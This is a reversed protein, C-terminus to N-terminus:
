SRLWSDYEGAVVQQEWEQTRTTLIGHVPGDGGRKTYIGRRKNDSCLAYYSFMGTRSVVYRLSRGLTLLQEKDAIFRIYEVSNLRVTLGAAAWRKFAAAVVGPRYTWEPLFRWQYVIGTALGTVIGEWNRNWHPVEYYGPFMGEATLRVIWFTLIDLAADQGGCDWLLPLAVSSISPWDLGAAELADYWDDVETQTTLVQGSINLCPLEVGRLCAVGSSVQNFAAVQKVYVDRDKGTYDTDLWLCDLSREWGAIKAGLAVVDAVEMFDGARGGFASPRGIRIEM